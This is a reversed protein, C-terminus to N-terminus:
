GPQRMASFVALGTGILWLVIAATYARGKAMRGAVHLGIAILITAWITGISFRSMLALMTNSVIPHYSTSRCTSHSGFSVLPVRNACVLIGSLSGKCESAM